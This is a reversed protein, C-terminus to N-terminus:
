TLVVLIGRPGAYMCSTGKGGGLMDGARSSCCLCVLTCIIMNMNGPNNNAVGLNPPIGMVRLLRHIHLPPFPISNLEQLPILHLELHLQHAGVHSQNCWSLLSSMTIIPFFSNTSCAGTTGDYRPRYTQTPNRIESTILIQVLIGHVHLCVM